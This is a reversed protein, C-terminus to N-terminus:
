LLDPRLDPLKYNAFHFPPGSPSPSRSGGPNPPVREPAGATQSVNATQAIASQTGAISMNESLQQRYQQQQQQDLLTPQPIFSSTPSPAMMDVAALIPRNSVSCPFMATRGRKRRPLIGKRAMYFRITSIPIDFKLSVNQFTEGRSVYEAAQQLLEESRRVRRGATSTDQPAQPQTNLEYECTVNALAFESPLDSGTKDTSDMGLEDEDGCQRSGSDDEDIILDETKICMENGSEGNDSHVGDENQQHHHHHPLAIGADIPQLNLSNLLQRKPGSSANSQQMRASQSQGGHRGAYPGESARATVGAHEVPEGADSSNASSHQQQQYQHSGSPSHVQNLNLAADSGCLGRIKLVEACKMLDPLGAQSVNVEGKYMFDVLAQIAWLKIDRPLIIIPHKCPNEGLLNEFYTSCAALVLRHCHVQHGECALTVDVFPSPKRVQPFAAGLSGLHSNWRVCFQQSLGAAAQSM